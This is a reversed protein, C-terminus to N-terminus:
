RRRLSAIGYEPILYSRSGFHSGCGVDELQRRVVVTGEYAGCAGSPSVFDLRVRWMGAEPDAELVHGERRYDLWPWGHEIFAERDLPQVVPEVGSWGRMNHAIAEVPGTRGVIQRTAHEDLFGWMYGSPFEKLTPAFRHGGFHSTRWVRVSPEARLANYVPIGFRACCLDV